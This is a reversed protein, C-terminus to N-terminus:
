LYDGPMKPVFPSDGDQEVWAHVSVLVMGHGNVDVFPVQQIEYTYKYALQEVMERENRDLNFTTSTYTQNLVHAIAEEIQAFDKHNTMALQVYREKTEM